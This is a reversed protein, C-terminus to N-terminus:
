GESLEIVFPQQYSHSMARARLALNEIGSHAERIDKEINPISIMFAAAGFVISTIAMVVILEM